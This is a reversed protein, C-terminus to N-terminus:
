AMRMRETAPGVRLVNFASWALYDFADCIHDLGAGGPGHLSKDAINTGEKYTLGDWARILAQAKPSVVVRQTGDAAMLLTNTNNIRDVVPPHASPAYVEFGARRMITFDTQGVVSTKTSRANGAPDPYFVIRRNPYRRKIEECVEVTNSTPIELADLIECVGGAEQAIVSAMPNVNFDQGVLLDGGRDQVPRVHNKRDFTYYVRGALAEFSAEYEQRFTRPDMDTRAAEVEDPSVWGGDVTTFSWAAWDDADAQARLWLDYFWDYGSPTSLFLARGERDSLAPRLVEGWIRKEMWRAEDLVALDLGRGRLRDPRDASKCTITSGNVLKVELRTENPKGAILEPPLAALMPEWALDRVMDYTPAIYWINQRKDAAAARVSEMVGLM